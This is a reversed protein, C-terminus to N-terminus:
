QNLVPTLHRTIMDRWNPVRFQYGCSVEENNTSARLSFTLAEWAARDMNGFKDDDIQRVGVGMADSLASVFEIQRVIQGPAFLNFVKGPESREAVNLVSGACDTIDLFSMWNQGSGYLPVEGNNLAPFVYHHHFWSGPGIIWPPRVITIPLLGERQADLWPEEAAFYERAYAIPNLPTQEDVIREGQDGYMLTGSVYLVRINPARECLWAILRRNARRGRHAAVTRGLRGRGRFRALHIITDPKFREIWSLDFRKLDDVVLDIDELARYNVNRHGLVMVRLHARRRLLNLIQTGIFGTAGLLLVRKIRTM